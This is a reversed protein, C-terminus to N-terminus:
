PNGTCNVLSLSLVGKSSMLADVDWTSASSSSGCLITVDEELAHPALGKDIHHMEDFNYVEGELIEADDVLPGKRQKWRTSFQM